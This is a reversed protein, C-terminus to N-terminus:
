ILANLFPLAISLGGDPLLLEAREPSGTHCTLALSVTGPLARGPSLKVM